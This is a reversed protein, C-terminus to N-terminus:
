RPNRNGDAAVDYAHLIETDFSQLAVLPSQLVPTSTRLFGDIAAAMRRVTQERSTPPICASLSSPWNRAIEPPGGRRLCVVPTGLSLAEAVCMGAEEHLSPHILAGARALRDLLQTRPLWGEFIVRDRVGLSVALRESRAREPGDGCLHLTAEGNEILALARIALTPAKWPLLRGAFLIETTRRENSWTTGVRTALANPMVRMESHPSLM